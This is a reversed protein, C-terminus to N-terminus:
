TGGPPPPPPPPPPPLPPPPPPPPPPSLLARPRSSCLTSAIAAAVVATSAPTKSNHCVPCATAALPRDAPCITVRGTAAAPLHSPRCLVPPLMMEVGLM